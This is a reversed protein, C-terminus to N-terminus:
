IEVSVNIGGAVLLIGLFDINTRNLRSKRLSEDICTLWNKMSVIKLKDKMKKADMLRLSKYATGINEKTIPNCSGGIEVGATRALTGDSIIHSVLLLNRNYNKNLILRM